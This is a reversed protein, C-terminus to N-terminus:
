RYWTLRQSVCYPTRTTQGAFAEPIAAIASGTAIVPELGFDAERPLISVPLRKVSRPDLGASAERFPSRLRCVSRPFPITVPLRKASP